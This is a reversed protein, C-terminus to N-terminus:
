NASVDDVVGTAIAILYSLEIDPRRYNGHVKAHIMELSLDIVCDAQLRSCKLTAELSKRLNSRHNEFDDEVSYRRILFVALESCFKIL